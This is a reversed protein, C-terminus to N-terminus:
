KKGEHNHAPQRLFNFALGESNSLCGSYFGHVVFSSAHRRTQRHEDNRHGMQWKKPLPLAGGVSGFEPGCLAGVQGSWAM